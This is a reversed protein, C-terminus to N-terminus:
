RITTADSLRTFDINRVLPNSFDLGVVTGAPNRRFRVLMRCLESTDCDVPQFGFALTDLSPDANRMASSPRQRACPM